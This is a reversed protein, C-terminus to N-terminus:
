ATDNRVVAQVTDPITSRLELARRADNAIDTATRTLTLRAECPMRVQVDLDSLSATTM